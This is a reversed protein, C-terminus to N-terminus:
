SLRYLPRSFLWCLSAAIAAPISLFLALFAGQRLGKVSPLLLPSSETPSVFFGLAVVGLVLSGVIALAVWLSNMGCYISAIAFAIGAIISPTVAAALAFFILLFVAVSLWARLTELEVLELIIQLMPVGILLVFFGFVATVVLPGVITFIVVIGLSRALRRFEFAVTV